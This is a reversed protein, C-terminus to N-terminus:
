STKRKIHSITIFIQFFRERERESEREREREREREFNLFEVQQPNNDCVYKM